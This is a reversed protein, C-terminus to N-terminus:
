ELPLVDDGSEEGADGRGHDLESAIENWPRNKNFQSTLWTRLPEYSIAKQDSTRTVLLAMWQDALHHGFKESALLEEVLKARKGPSPDDLFQRAKEPSPIVGTLDLSARRLFEADTCNEGAVVKKEALRADIERDIVVAVASADGIKAPTFKDPKSVNESKALEAKQKEAKQREEDRKKQEEAKKQAELQQKRLQQRANPTQAVVSADALGIFVLGTLLITHRSRMPTDQKQRIAFPRNM